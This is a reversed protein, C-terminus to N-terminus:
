SLSNSTALLLSTEQTASVVGMAYKALQQVVLALKLGHLLQAPKVTQLFLTYSSTKYYPM